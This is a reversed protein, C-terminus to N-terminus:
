STAREATTIPSTTCPVPAPANRVRSMMHADMFRGDGYGYSRMTGEIEFGLSRYLHIANTNETFVVLSLREINMWREALDIMAEMMARGIGRGQHDPHTIILNIEAVHRHRPGDPFTMLESFGVVVGDLVAVFHDVGRQPELRERTADPSAIPLRMTGPLIHPSDFLPQIGAIDAESMGRVELAVASTTAVASVAAIRHGNVGVGTPEEIMITM